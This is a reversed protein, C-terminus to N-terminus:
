GNKVKDQFDETMGCLELAKDVAIRQDRLTWTNRISKYDEPKFLLNGEKDVACMAIYSSDRIESKDSDHFDKMRDFDGGTPAKMYVEKKLDILPLPKM